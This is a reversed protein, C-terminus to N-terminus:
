RSRREDEDHLMKLGERTFHWFAREFDPPVNTSLDMEEEVLGKGQAARLQRRARPEAPGLASAVDATARIGKTNVAELLEFNTM